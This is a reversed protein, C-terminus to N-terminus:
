SGYDICETTGGIINGYRKLRDKVTTLGDSGKHGCIGKPGTDNVHDQCAKVIEENWSLPPVPNTAALFELLNQIATPGEQTKIFPQGPFCYLDGQCSKLLM